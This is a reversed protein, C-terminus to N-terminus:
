KGLPGIATTVRVICYMEFSSDEFWSFLKQILVEARVSIFWLFVSQIM